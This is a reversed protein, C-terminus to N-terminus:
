VSGIAAIDFGGYEDDDFKVEFIPLGPAIRRLTEMLHNEGVDCLANYLHEGDCGAPLTIAKNELLKTTLLKHRLDVLTEHYEFVEVISKHGSLDMYHRPYVGFMGKVFLVANKHHEGELVVEKAKMYKSGKFSFEIFDYEEQSLGYVDPSVKIQNMHGCGGFIDHKLKESQGDTHLQINKVGGIVECLTEFVRVMNIGFGYENAAAIILALEGADAGPIALPAPHDKTHYRDDICRSIFETTKEVPYLNASVLNYVDTKSLPYPKKFQM